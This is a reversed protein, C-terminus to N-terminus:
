LENRKRTERPGVWADKKDKTDDKWYSKTHVFFLLETDETETASRSRRKQLSSIAQNITKVLSWPTATSIKAARRVTKRSTPFAHAM